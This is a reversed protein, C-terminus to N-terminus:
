LQYETVQPKWWMYPLLLTLKEWVEDERDPPVHHTRFLRDIVAQDYGLVDGFASRQPQYRAQRFISWALVNEIYLEPPANDEDADFV